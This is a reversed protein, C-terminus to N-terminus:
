IIRLLTLGIYSTISTGGVIALVIGYVKLAEQIGDVTCIYGFLVLLPSLIVLIGCLINM